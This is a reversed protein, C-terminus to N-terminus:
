VGQQYARLYCVPSATINYVNLVVTDGDPILWHFNPRSTASVMGLVMGNLDSNRIGSIPRIEAGGNNNSVTSGQLQIYLPVGISCGTITWTGTTSMVSLTPGITLVTTSIKSKGATSINDLATNAKGALGAMYNSWDFVSANNQASAVVVFHRLRVQEDTVTTSKGYIPDTGSKSADVALAYGTGSTGGILYSKVSGKKFAGSVVATADLFGVDGGSTGRSAEGTINPLGAVISKGLEAASAAQTISDGDKILPVRFKKNDNDLAFKACNGTLAVQAAQQEYTCTLLRGGVLYTDYFSPFQARTYEGGNAPVCGNPVYGDACLLTQISGILVTSLNQVETVLGESNAAANDASQQAATASVGASTASAGASIASLDAATASANASDRAAYLSAIIDATSGESTTSILVARSIQEKLQQCILTLKALANEHSKAPFSDLEAYQYLQTIPINLTLAIRSGTPPATTFSIHGGTTLGVGTVTYQSPDITTVVDTNTLLSTQVLVQSSELIPFSFYFDKNVGDTLYTNRYVSNQVLM